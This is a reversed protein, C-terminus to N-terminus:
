AEEGAGLNAHQAQVTRALGRQQADHGADVLLEVALGAGQGAGLNTVQFLFWLKVRGLADAFDNFFGHRGDLVRQRFQVLMQQM